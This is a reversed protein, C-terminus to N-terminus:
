KKMQDQVAEQYGKAFMESNVKFAKVKYYIGSAASGIVSSALILLFAVLVRGKKTKYHNFKKM